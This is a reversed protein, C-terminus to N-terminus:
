FDKLDYRSQINLKSFINKSHTKTTNLSIFLK